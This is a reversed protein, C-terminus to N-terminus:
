QPLNPTNKDAIKVAGYIAANTLGVVLSTIAASDLNIGKDGLYGSVFVALSSVFAYGGAKVAKGLASDFFAVKKETM